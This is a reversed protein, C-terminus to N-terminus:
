INKDQYYIVHRSKGANTNFFQRVSSKHEIKSGLLATVDLKNLEFM